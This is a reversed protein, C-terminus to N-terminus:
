QLPRGIAIPTEFSRWRLGVWGYAVPAGTEPDAVLLITGFGFGSGGARTDDDHLLSTSDALRVLYANTYGPAPVPRHVAFAVHGTNASQIIKPKLWAVVDGPEIEAVREVRRWGYRERGGPLAALRRQFDRALPRQKLGHRVAARARPAAKSLLWDAFGSCDFVYVGDRENVRFGHSYETTNLTAAMKGIARMVRNADWDIRADSLPNQPLVAKGAPATERSVAAVPPAPTAPSGDLAALCVSSVPLAVLAVTRALLRALSSTRM